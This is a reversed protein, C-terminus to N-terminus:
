LRSCSPVDGDRGYYVRGAKTKYPGFAYCIPGEEMALEIREPGFGYGIDTISISCSVCMTRGLVRATVSCAQICIRRMDTTALLANSGTLENRPVMSRQQDGLRVEFLEFSRHNLHRTLIETLLDILLCTMGNRGDNFLEPPRPAFTLM